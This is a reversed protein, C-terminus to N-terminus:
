ESKVALPLDFSQEWRMSLPECVTLLVNAPDFCGDWGEIMMEVVNDEEEYSIPDCHLGKVNLPIYNGDGDTAIDYLVKNQVEM